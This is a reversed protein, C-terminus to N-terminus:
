LVVCTCFLGAQYYVGGVGVVVCTLGGVGVGGFRVSWERM